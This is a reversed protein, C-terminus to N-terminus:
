AKFKEMLNIIQNKYRLIKGSDKAVTRKNFDYFMEIKKDAFIFSKIKLEFDEKSKIFYHNLLLDENNIIFSKLTLIINFDHATSYSQPFIYDTRAMCKYSRKEPLRDTYNEIVLGEPSKEHGSSGFFYSPITTYVVGKKDLYELYDTIKHFDSEKKLYVFEDLDVKLVWKANQKYRILFDGYALYQTNHEKSRKKKKKDYPLNPLDPFPIHTVLGAEIYPSLIKNTKEYNGNNYLYFHSVGLNIYHCLWEEIFKDEDKMIAVIALSVKDKIVKSNSLNNEIRIKKVKYNTYLLCGPYVRLNSKLLKKFSNFLNIFINNNM